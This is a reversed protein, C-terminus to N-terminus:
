EKKTRKNQETKIPDKIQLLGGFFYYILLGSCCNGQQFCYEHWLSTSFGTNKLPFCSSISPHSWTGKRLYNRGEFKCLWSHMANLPLYPWAWYKTVSLFLVNRGSFLLYCVFCIISNKMDRCVGPEYLIPGFNLYKSKLNQSNKKKKNAAQAIRINMCSENQEWTGISVTGWNFMRIKTHVGQHYIQPYSPSPSSSICCWSVFGKKGSGTHQYIKM